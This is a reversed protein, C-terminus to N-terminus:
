SGRQDYIYPLKRVWVNYGGFGIKLSFLWGTQDATKRQDFQLVGLPWLCAKVPEFPM